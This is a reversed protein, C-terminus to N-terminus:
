HQSYGQQLLDKFYNFDVIFIQEVHPIKSYDEGSRISNVITKSAYFCARKELNNENVNQMEINVITGNELTAVLDLIGLKDINSIKNLSVESKITIKSIPTKLIGELFDKLAYENEKRGFNRM